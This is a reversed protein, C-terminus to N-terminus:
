TEEKARSNVELENMRALVSKAYGSLQGNKHMKRAQTNDMSYLMLAYGVDGNAYNNILDSFYDVGTLINGYPDYLDTVGLSSARDKHWYTSVQMLGVHNGNSVDPIFRSEREIVSIILYPSVNYSGCIEHVYSEYLERGELPEPFSYPEFQSEVNYDKLKTISVDFSKCPNLHIELELGILLIAFLSIVFLLPFKFSLKPSNDM